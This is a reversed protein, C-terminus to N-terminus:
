RTVLNGADDFRYNGPSGHIPKALEVLEDEYVSFRDRGDNAFVLRKGDPKIFKVEVPLGALHGLSAVRRKRPKFLYPM